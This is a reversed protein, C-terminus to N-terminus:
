VHWCGRGATIPVEILGKDTLCVINQGDFVGLAERITDKEVYPPGIWVPSGPRVESMPHMLGFAASAIGQFGGHAQVLRLAGFESCYKGRFPLAYDVGTVDRVVAAVFLGCDYDGYRFEVTQYKKLAAALKM